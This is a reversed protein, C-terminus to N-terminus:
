SELNLPGDTRLMATGERALRDRLQDPSDALLPDIEVPHLPEGLGDRPLEVGAYELWDAFLASQARRCSGPSDDGDRNKIPAFERAREVELVISADCRGLADFVFTEFKVGAVQSEKGTRPDICPIDKRALHYPLALGDKTIEEIFDRRMVHTAINGDRFRLHGQDDRAEREHESLDSYEIVGYRGNVLGVVGVKEDADRKPVVKSSMQAGHLLHHGLFVPDAMAVLPNDVQFYFVQEIGRERMVDLSKSRALALLSGGHGNPSAFIEGPASLLIRGEADMAPLMDQQFLFVEKPDLGWYDHKEFAAVTEDHNTASTMIFWPLRARHARQLGQIKRAFVEFLCRANIPTAPFLGKPGPFGLRSGQGGAVVFAAVRSSALLANGASEARRDEAEDHGRRISPAPELVMPDGDESQTLRRRLGAIEDWDLETLRRLFRDRVEGSLTDAHELLHGQGEAEIRAKLADSIM